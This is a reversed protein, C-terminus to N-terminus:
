GPGPTRWTLCHSPVRRTLLSSIDPAQRQLHAARYGQLIHHKCKGLLSDGGTSKFGSSRAARPPDQIPSWFTCEWDAEWPIGHFICLATHVVRHGSGSCPKRMVRLSSLKLFPEQTPRFIDLPAELFMCKLAGKTLLLNKSKCFFGHPRRARVASPELQFLLNGVERAQELNAWCMQLCRGRCQALLSARSIKIVTVLIDM